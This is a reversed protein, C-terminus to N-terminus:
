MQITGDILSETIKREINSNRLAEVPDPNVSHMIVPAFVVALQNAGMRNQCRNLHVRKLHHLLFKLTHYHAPPLLRMSQMMPKPQLTRLQLLRSHVDFSILPVPLMRLYLKMAGAIAKLDRCFSLDVNMGDEEFALRITNITRNFSNSRYLGEVLLGGRREIELVCREIVIPIISGNSAYAKVLTTLDVGFINHIYKMQPVCDPPIDESCRRHAQFGCDSCKVGQSVLGWMFNACYDCWHPGKFTHLRFTHPKESQIVSLRDMISNSRIPLSDKGSCNQPQQARQDMAAMLASKKNAVYPCHSYIIKEQMKDIYDRAHTEVYFAILGDHVLEDLNQFRKEGVFHEGNVHFLKFNKVSKNFRICLTFSDPPNFSRRVLYAGDEYRSLIDDAQERTLNGHYESGYQSVKDIQRGDSSCPIKLPKPAQEQLEYLYSKWKTADVAVNNDSDCM